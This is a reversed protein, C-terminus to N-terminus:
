KVTVKKVNVNGNVAVRVLYVGAKEMQATYQYNGAAFTNNVVPMIEVGSLELVSVKVKADEPLTFDIEIEQGNAYVSVEDTNSYTIGTTDGKGKGVNASLLSKVYLMTNSYPSRVIQAGNAAKTKTKNAAKLNTLLQNNAVNGTLTLKEVLLMNFIDGAGLKDYVKYILDPNAKCYNLLDNFQSNEFAEFNSYPINKWSAKWADYKTEFADKVPSAILATEAKIADQEMEDFQVNELVSAGDAISESLSYSTVFRNFQYSASVQGLGDGILKNRPHFTRVDTGLKSEWDYGHLQGNASGGVAVHTYYKNVGNDYLYLDLYSNSAGAATRTYSYCDRGKDSGYRYSAFYFDFSALDTEKRYDSFAFPPWEWYDTIGGAWSASNYVDTAGSAFIIDDRNQVTIPSTITGGKCGVYLDCYGTPNNSSAATVIVADVATRYTLQLRANGGWNFGSSLPSDDNFGVIRNPTGYKEISIQTDINNKATFTNTQVGPEQRYVFGTSTVPVNKYEGDGVITLNVNGMQGDTLSRVRVYYFGSKTIPTTLGAIGKESNASWSYNVPENASFLELIHPYNYVGGSTAIFQQGATLYLHRYYTYRFSMRTFGFDYLPDNAERTGSAYKTTNRTNLCALISDKYATEEDIASVSAKMKGATKITAMFQDFKDSSIAAKSANVSLRIFDVAAVEPAKAIFSINNKGSKLVVKEKLMYSQIAGTEPAVKTRLLEGNVIVEYNSITGDAHQTPLLWMNLNYLGNAPAEIEFTTYINGGVCEKTSSNITIDGGLAPNNKFYQTEVIKQQGSAAMACVFLFTSLLLKLKM